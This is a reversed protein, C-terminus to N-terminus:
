KFNLNAFEGHYKKAADDYARAAEEETKFLGLHTMKYNKTIQACWYRYEKEKYKMKAIHVGEYKSQGLAM